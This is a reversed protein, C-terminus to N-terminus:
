KSNLKALFENLQEKAVTSSLSYREALRALFATRDGKIAELEHDTFKKWKKKVEGLYKGWNLGVQDWKMPHGMKHLLVQTAPNTGRIGKVLGRQRSKTRQKVKTRARAGSRAMELEGAGKEVILFVNM